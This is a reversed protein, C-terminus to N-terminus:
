SKVIISKIKASIKRLAGEYFISILIIVGIGSFFPIWKDTSFTTYLAYLVLLFTCIYFRYLRYNVKFFKLSFSTRLSFFLIYSIGTSIASGTAGLLPVLVVNGIVNYICVIAAIIIHYQTKKYFNVGVVTIESITYMVPVFVLFPMISAAGRYDEGLLYIIIDKGMLVGAAVLLMVYTVIENMNRFFSKNNPNEKFKEYSLPTWFATFNIQLMNLLAIIKFAAAYLGLESYDAWTKIAIRDVSQFVWSMMFTIMLPVGYKLLHSAKTQIPPTKWKLFSWFRFEFGIAIISVIAMFSVQAYIMVTYDDGILYFFFLIGLFELLKNLIQILSFLKGKQQMRVVLSAYTSIIRLFVYVLLLVILWLSITSFLLQSLVKYFTLAICALFVFITFAIGLCKRLLFRRDPKEEEYFFRAFSQDSGMLALAGVIEVVLLFMAAKGFQEPSILRTIIPTSIFGIIMAVWSGISISLFKNLISKNQKM